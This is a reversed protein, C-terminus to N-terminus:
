PPNENPSIHTHSRAGTNSTKEIPAQRTSDGSTGLNNLRRILDEVTDTAEENWFICESLDIPSWGQNTPATGLLAQLMGRPMPKDRYPEPAWAQLFKIVDALDTVGNRAVLNIRACLM